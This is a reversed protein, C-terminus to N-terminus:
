DKLRSIVDIGRVVRGIGARHYTETSDPTKKTEIGLREVAVNWDLANDFYLVVYNHEEMLEGSIALQPKIGPESEIKALLEDVDDGDFGTGELDGAKAIEKLMEAMINDDYTGLDSMRNDALLYAKAEWDSLTAPAAAIHTWGLDKGAKWVHNGAAIQHSSEQVVVPKLQGFRRLSTVIAGVDGQRPNGPWPSISDIPVLLSELAESGKWRQGEVEPAKSRGAM